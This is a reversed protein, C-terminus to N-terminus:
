LQGEYWYTEHRNAKRSFFIRIIASQQSIYNFTHCVILLRSKKSTGMTIWREESESHEADYITLAMPDIFVTAAEEFRVGHKQMNSCAKKPDWEFSYKISV